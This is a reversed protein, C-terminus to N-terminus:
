GDLEGEDVIVGIGALISRVQKESYAPYSHDAYTCGPTPLKVCPPRAEHGSISLKGDSINVGAVRLMTIVDGEEFCAVKGAWLRTTPLTAVPKNREMRSIIESASDHAERFLRAQRLLEDGRAELEDVRKQAQELAAILASLEDWTLIPAYKDNQGHKLRIDAIIGEIGKDM